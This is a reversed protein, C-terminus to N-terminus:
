GPERIYDLQRNEYVPEALMRRLGELTKLPSEWLVLDVAWGLMPSNTNGGADGFGQFVVEVGGDPDPEFSWHSQLRPMRVYPSREPIRGDANTGRITVRLTSPDQELTTHVVVDRHEFPWPMDNVIYVYAEHDSVYELTRAEVTRHVWQPMAQADRFLAVLAGLSTRVRTVGRFETYGDGTDRYYVKIADTSKKLKWDAQASAGALVCAALTIVAAMRPASM